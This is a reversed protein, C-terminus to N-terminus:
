PVYLGNKEVIEKGGSFAYYGNNQKFKEKDNLIAAVGPSIALEDNAEAMAIEDGWLRTSSSTQSM